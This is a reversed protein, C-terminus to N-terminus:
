LDPHCSEFRRGGPGLGPVRALSLWVGIISKNVVCFGNYLYEDTIDLSKSLVRAAEIATVANGIQYKGKLSLEIPMDDYIFSTYPIDFSIDRISGKPAVLESTTEDCRKKIVKLCESHMCPSVVVKAGQKITGAKEFAIESLTDGLIATHDLGIPTIVNCLPTDIVNTADFRGGLGVELVVVDCNKEYFYLFALATIFEFEIPSIGDLVAAVRNTYEVLDDASILNNNICIRENFLEIYPSTYYGVKYNHSILINNIMNSTSGKGNTGAVHIFKLKKHPNGLRELIKQTNSLGAKKGFKSLSHIYEICKAETSLM